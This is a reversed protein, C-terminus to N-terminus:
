LSAAACATCLILRHLGYRATDQELLGPRLMRYLPVRSATLSPALSAAVRAPSDSHAAATQVVPEAATSAALGRRVPEALPVGSAKVAAALDAALYVSTREGPM